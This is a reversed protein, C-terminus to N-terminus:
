GIRRERWGAFLTSSLQVCLNNNNLILMLVLLLTGCIMKSILLFIYFDLFFHPRGINAGSDASFLRTEIGSFGNKVGLFGM